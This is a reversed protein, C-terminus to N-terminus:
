SEAHKRYIKEFDPALAKFAALIDPDFHGPETRGDGKTIIGFAEQHTLAPKYPRKSMLADYVDCIMVIRGEIPIGEGKLGNPYGTGDWREHHNLAISAAMQLLVHDSGALMQAGFVTHKKITEFEEKTLAGPKLLIGDPIAVKGIDHLLSAYTITNVFEEPMKLHQAIAESYDGIRVIHFGTDADRYEAVTTLRLITEKNLADIKAFAARLEETRRAVTEELEHKYNKELRILRSYDIARTITHLLYEPKFPKSIFDFAGKKVADIALELEAYATMLIVPIENNVGHIQELLELGSVGPMKIDTLVVDFEQERVLAMAQEADECGTVRYGIGKLLFSVSDLMNPDDDVVLVRHNM